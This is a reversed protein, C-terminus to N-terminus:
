VVLRLSSDKLTVRKIAFKENEFGRLNVNLDTQNLDANTGEVIDLADSVSESLVIEDEDAFDVLRSAINVTSGFYDINNNLNVAMCSGHHIGAKLKLRQSFEEHNSIQEHAKMFARYANYPSSFVAMVSDGITKVIAGNEEAIADQLIEFHEIVRVVATKDGEKNYMGTSDFLDTFMLTQSDVAIKEGKRLVEKDFLDRFLQLSTVDAATLAQSSWEVKELIFIKNKNTENQLVLNPQPTIEAKEGNLGAKKLSIMINEDGSDSVQVDASGKQGLIHLRYKGKDLRTKLYRKEGPKLYQKVSIHAKTQPGTICYRDESIKRILPNPRFTLHINRNFNVNFEEQCEECFVPEHIESLTKCRQQLSRCSSCYLDWNFNLLGCKTAHLFVSLVEQRDMKWHDSLEYPSIHAVDIDQAHSIFDILRSVITPRETEANLKLRAEEIRQRGGRVLRMKSQQEYPLHEKQILQDYSRLTKRLRRRFLFNFKLPTLYYALLNRTTVWVQYHIMTGQENPHLDVQIKLEQYAGNKYLRKVGFRYPREWEYPEEVWADSSQLSNYSLQTHGLRSDYSIDSPQVPPLKIQRNFRNTDSLLPWLQEPSSSLQWHWDFHLIQSDM